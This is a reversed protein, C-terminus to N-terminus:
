SKPAVPAGEALGQASSVIMKEGPKIGDLVIYENGVIEGLVLQRQKAVDGGKDGKEVVFGFPQGNIRTVSLVPITIRPQQGWIVRARTLQATRLGQAGKEIPAKVLVTQTQTNVQPSIFNIATSAVPKGNSDLLDIKKNLALERSREVPVEIYAEISGPQDVTTLMTQPNVRDGVHVPVDGVVGSTPATVKYYRLQVNEARVQADIAKLEERAADLAAKSQDLSQKSTVGEAFLKNTRDYEQEALRVAAQKASRAAEQSGATAQQKLPDIQM